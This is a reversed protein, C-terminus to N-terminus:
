GMDVLVSPMFLLSDCVALSARLMVMCLRGSPMATPTTNALWSLEASVMDAAMATEIPIAMCFMGSPAMTAMGILAAPLERSRENRMPVSLPITSGNPVTAMMNSADVSVEVRGKKSAKEAPDIIYTTTSSNIGSAECPFCVFMEVMPNAKPNTSIIIRSTTKPYDVMSWCAGMCSEFTVLSRLWEAMKVSHAMMM